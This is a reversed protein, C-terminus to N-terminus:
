RQKEAARDAEIAANLEALTPGPEGEPLGSLIVGALVVSLLRLLPFFHQAALRELSAEPYMYKLAGIVSGDPWEPIALQIPAWWAVPAAGHAEPSCTDFYRGDALQVRVAARRGCAIVPLWVDRCECSWECDCSEPEPEPNPYEFKCRWFSADRPQWNKM